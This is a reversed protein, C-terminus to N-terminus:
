EPPGLAETTVQSSANWLMWGLGFEEASDIQARVQDPTYGFDQLWPRVVVERPLRQMGDQLANRVMEAPHDNPRDFGYWGTAYHSPYVMPSVVDVVSSVQEWNQGIAGDDVAATTFGFVDAAVACGLPHLVEVAASLFGIVTSTRVDLTVGGDFVVSEPRRDPFRVYDFQLEDLGTSCAEVALDLAYQRAEPDTPDLFYQNNHSFPADTATDIVSMSPKRIAATPDQFAVLRGIVYLGEAHARDVVVQLDYVGYDAGVEIAVPNATDYWVLGTEDKLDIMVANLETSKAMQIFEEFRDRVAEGGIHVARVILPEVEVTAEGGGGDWEFSAHVWAPRVVTVEGPEAGRVNFHGEDDSRGQARGATIVADAVPEGEADVVRGRLVRAKLVVEFLEDPRDAITVNRSVHGPAGIDLVTSSRGWEMDVIGDDGSTGVQSGGVDVVAAAVPVGQDDLIRLQYPTARGILSWAAWVAWVITLAVLLRFQTRRSVIPGSTVGPPRFGQRLTALNGWASYNEVPLAM